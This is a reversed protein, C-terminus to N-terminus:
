MWVVRGARAAAGLRTGGGGGVVGFFSSSEAEISESRELTVSEGVREVGEEEESRLEAKPVETKPERLAREVRERSRSAICNGVEGESV